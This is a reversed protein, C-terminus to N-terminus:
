RVHKQSCRRTFTDRRTFQMNLHIGGNGLGLMATIAYLDARPAPTFGIGHPPPSDDGWHKRSGRVGPQGHMGGLRHDPTAIRGAM